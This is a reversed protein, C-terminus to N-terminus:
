HEVTGGLNEFFQRCYVRLLGTLSLPFQRELDQVTSETHLPKFPPNKINSIHIIMGPFILLSM